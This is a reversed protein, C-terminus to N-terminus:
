HRSSLAQNTAEIRAYIHAQQEQQQQRKLQALRKAELQKTKRDEALNALCATIGFAILMVLPGWISEM